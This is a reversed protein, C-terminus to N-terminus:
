KSTFIFRGYKEYFEDFKKLKTPDIPLDLTKMMMKSSMINLEEQMNKMQFEFVNDM